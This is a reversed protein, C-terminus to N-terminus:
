AKVIRTKQTLQTEEKVHEVFCFSLGTLRGVKGLSQTIKWFTPM